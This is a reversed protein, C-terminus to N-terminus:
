PTPTPGLWTQPPLLDADLGEARYTAALTAPPDAHETDLDDAVALVARRIRDGTRSQQSPLAAMIRRLQEAAEANM